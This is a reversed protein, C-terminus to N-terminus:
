CNTYNILLEFKLKGKKLNRNILFNYMDCENRGVNEIQSTAQKM